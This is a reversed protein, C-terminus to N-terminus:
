MDTEVRRARGIIRAERHRRRAAHEDLALRGRVAGGNGRLDITLQMAEHQDGADDSFQIGARMTITATCRKRDVRATSATEAPTMGAFGGEVVAGDAIVVVVLATQLSRIPLGRGRQKWSVEWRGDAACPPAAEAAGVMTMLFVLAVAIRVGRNVCVPGTLPALVAM